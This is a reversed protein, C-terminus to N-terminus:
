RLAVGSTTTIHITDESLYVLFTRIEKDTMEKLAKSYLQVQENYKENPKGTKYDILYIANDLEAYRDFRRIAGQYLVECETKVKADPGFAAQIMPHSAMQNFRDRIWDAAAQDLTGDAVNPKLVTELDKPYRVQSLIAHVKEGWERPQLRESEVQWLKTPEPDVNIKEFWDMSISDTPMEVTDEEAEEEPNRFDPSGFRYVLAESGSVQHDGKDVLFGRIVNPKDAKGQKAIVYLRQVARTFAVYLLNLNDLQNSAKEKDVEENAKGGMITAKKDLKFLVKDLNPIAEFGLDEPRLWKEAAKRANEDLDVIAEPYIVVPFELGKSKHITMIKVANGGISMVSLKDQKKDWYSLFESLGEMPGSQWKFVEEMFYNLFADRIDDFHYIRLLSACLDYLCTAKSLAEQLAGAKGIGMEQEIAREGKAIAKVADFSHSIDGEFGPHKTLEWYHLVNAVHTENSGDTLFRLTNVMLQVKDSSKLLISDQSIVPIGSDNLRNAMMSGYGSKRTLITIDKYQYGYKEKLERIIAEVRDFCYEPQEDADYLEVQVLGEDTKAKKQFISVGEDTGPKEAVYVKQQDSSLDHYAYEFFANNFDVVQAFSRYNTDLNKFAFNDKLNKEFQRFAAEREDKPLAYIEPLRAIQEVEGSRFRYISQKGDGVVMSMNGNSLGNDILPLLNQWQLISTDQFEDVFVHRFHEGIREYVFPISFDGMVTNLLKNFESIHVIEEESALKDFELRIQARLAYLYLFGRQAKYFLYAGLDHVVYEKISELVPLLKANIEEARAKGLQKEAEKSLCNWKELVTTLRSSPLDYEKNSLKRLYSVFGNKGYNFQEDCLGYETKLKGFDDLLSNLGQEFVHTKGNLFDLTQKYQVANQINNSEDKQYAKETMLKTIFETLQSEVPTYRQNDFQNNSFDVLLGTLFKDEEKDSIRLGIYETITEAVEETDISVAYQSPLGLDRAFTRSLKQVFADITSVCFSSYDHMICTMLSQANRKLEDDSIALEEILKAEMSKPDVAKSDIIECLAKVIKAKMENAAANTFTIALINRYNAVAGQSGLCLKLYEKILTFTKGAGASAQFVKFNSANEM